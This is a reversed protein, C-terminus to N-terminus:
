IWIGESPKPLCFECGLRAAEGQAKLEELIQDGPPPGDTLPDKIHIIYVSLGALSYPKYRGSQSDASRTSRGDGEAAVDWTTDSAGSLRGSGKVGSRTEMQTSLRPSCDGYGVQLEVSNVSYARKTKPSVNSTEEPSSDKRKRKGAAKEKAQQVEEVKSALTSLEAILHRPCLHGYLSADDISDNYSCEIFIARLTGNAVKPAAVEWVRSNRPDLSLSDPEVDGFVIIESGTNQDRIFFASSEITRWVAEKPNSTILRPSRSPTSFDSTLGINSYDIVCGM